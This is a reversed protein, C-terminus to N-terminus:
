RRLRATRLWTRAASVAAHDLHPDPASASPAAPPARPRVGPSVSPEIDTTSGAPARDLQKRSQQVILPAGQPACCLMVDVCSASGPLGAGSDGPEHAGAPCCDHSVRDPACALLPESMALLVSFLASLVFLRRM